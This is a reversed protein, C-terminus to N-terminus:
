GRKGKGRGATVRIPIMRGPGDDDDNDDRRPELMMLVALVVISLLAIEAMM